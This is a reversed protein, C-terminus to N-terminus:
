LRKRLYSTIVDKDDYGYKIGMIEQYTEGGKGAILLVDGGRLRNLAYGTAKERDEIAVYSKSVPAFGAEIESMIACPDEYRPNDSTIVSFDAFKAATEGMKARKGSDRNGGCGFLVSLRGRCHARLASLSKQLGDPTHAFDVFVDAGNISAVWELRGNVGTMESLGKGIAKGDAGLRRAASAAALANSINHRGMMHLKTEVLEDSLNLLLESGRLDEREVVAFCDAPNELGYTEHETGTLLRSFEDGSNLVSFRTREPSFLTKKAAGYANMDAFFDLHDRTLNTFVAVDYVIPCEKKLALAHASVEMAVVEVGDKAMDSLVSFLFVPDPTTLVPAFTRTGYEAGLTGIIGAKKGAAKMINYIMHCVTTKGNTGTVGVIKMKREPHGYFAASIRAMAVRGDPVILQSPAETEQESVVASAGKKCAEDIFRHSDVHTGRLCFFLDGKGAVRSDTCLSAIEADEGVVRANEIERAFESLKM